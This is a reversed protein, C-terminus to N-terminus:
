SKQNRQGIDKFNMIAAKLEAPSVGGITNMTIVTTPTIVIAATEGINAGIAAKGIPSDFQTYGTLQSLNPPTEPKPQENVTVRKNGNSFKYYVQGIQFTATDKMYTYGPPMPSPFYLSYNVQRTITDPITNPSDTGKLLYGAGFIAAGALLIAALLSIKKSRKKAAHHHAPTASQAPQHHPQPHHEPQHAPRSPQPQHYYPPPAPHQAAAPPIHGQNPQHTQSRPDPHPQHRPQPTPRSPSGDPRSTPLAYDRRQPRRIDDM